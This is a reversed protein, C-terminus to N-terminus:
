RAALEARLEVHNYIEGNFVAVVRGAETMMPQTGAAPDIVRLRVSGLGVNENKYIGQEDPGRHALQNLAEGLRMPSFHSRTSAYGAIGCVTNRGSRQVATAPCM